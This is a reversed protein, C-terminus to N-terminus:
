GGAILALLLLLTIRAARGRRPVGAPPSLSPERAVEPAPAPLSKPKPAVLDIPVNSEPVSGPVQVPEAPDDAAAKRKAEADEDARREAAVAAQESARRKAEIEAAARRQAEAEAD